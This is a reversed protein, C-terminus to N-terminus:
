SGILRRLSVLILRGGWVCVAATSITARRATFARAGRACGGIKASLYVLWSIGSVFIAAGVDCPKRHGFSRNVGRSIQHGYTRKPLSRTAKPVGRDSHLSPRNRQNFTALGGQEKLNHTPSPRDRSRVTRGGIPLNGPSGRRGSRSLSGNRLRQTRRRNPIGFGTNQPNFRGMWKSSGDKRDGPFTTAVIIVNEELTVLGIDDVKLQEPARHNM